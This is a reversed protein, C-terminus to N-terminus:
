QAEEREYYRKNSALLTERTIADDGLYVIQYDGFKAKWEKQREPRRSEL